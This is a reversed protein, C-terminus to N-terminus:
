AWWCTSQPPLAGRRVPDRRVPGRRGRRGPRLPQGHPHHGRGASPTPWWRAQELHEPLEDVAAVREAGRAALLVSLGGTFCGVDAVQKGTLDTPWWGLRDVVGALTLYKEGLLGPM